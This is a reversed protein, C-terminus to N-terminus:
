TGDVASAEKAHEEAQSGDPEACRGKAATAQRLSTMLRQQAKARERKMAWEQNVMDAAVKHLRSCLQRDKIGQRM